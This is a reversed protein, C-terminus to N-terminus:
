LSTEIVVRLKKKRKNEREESLSVFSPDKKSKSVLSQVLRASVGYKVAEEKHTLKDNRASDILLKMESVSLKSKTVAKRSTGDYNTVLRSGSSLM